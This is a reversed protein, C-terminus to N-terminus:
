RMYKGAILGAVGAVLLTTKPNEEATRGLEEGAIAALASIAQATEDAQSPAVPKSSLALYMTTLVILCVLLIVGATALAALPPTIHLVMWTYFSLSLFFLAIFSLAVTLGVLSVGIAGRQLISSKKQAFSDGLAQQLIQLLPNV